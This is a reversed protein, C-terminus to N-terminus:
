NQKKIFEPFIDMVPVFSITHVEDADGKSKLVWDPFKYNHQKLHGHAYNTTQTAVVSHSPTVQRRESIPYALRCGVIFRSIFMQLAIDGKRVQKGNFTWHGNNVTVAASGFPVVENGDNDTFTKIM